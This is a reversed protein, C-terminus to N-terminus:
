ISTEMSSSEITISFYDQAVTTRTSRGNPTDLDGLIISMLLIMEGSSPITIVLVVM